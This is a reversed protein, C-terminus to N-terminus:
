KSVRKSTKSTKSTKKNKEKITLKNKIKSFSQISSRILLKSIGSNGKQTFIPDQLCEDISYRKWYFPHVMRNVLEFAYSDNINAKVIIEAFVLGLSFIDWKFLYNNKDFLDKTVRNENFESM